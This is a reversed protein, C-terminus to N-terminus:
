IKLGASYDNIEIKKITEFFFYCPLSSPTAITEAIRKSLCLYNKNRCDCLRIQGHTKTPMGTM